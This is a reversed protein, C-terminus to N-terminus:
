ALSIPEICSPDDNRPSNVHRSVPTLQLSDSPDPILLEQLAESASEPNLWTKFDRAALMVPMRHHVPKTAQNADTTLITCSEIPTEGRDYRDWLGAMVFPLQDKRSIYFPQKEGGKAKWEYYGDALILCRKRKFSTRFSPKEAVTESRANILPKSSSVEKSWFPILGWRLLTFGYGQATEHDMAEPHRLAAVQQTPAVNFRAPLEIESSLGFQKVLVSMPSRLTFRGCM